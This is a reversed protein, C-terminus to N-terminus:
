QSAAQNYTDSSTPDIIDVPARILCDSLVQKELPQKGPVYCVNLDYKTLKLLMRQLRPPAEILPKKFIAELPKHDGQVIVQRGYLYIHFKQM